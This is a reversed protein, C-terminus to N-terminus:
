TYDTSPISISKFYNLGTVDPYPGSTLHQSHKLPEQMQCERLPSYTTYHRTPTSLMYLLVLEDVKVPSCPTMGSPLVTCVYLYM